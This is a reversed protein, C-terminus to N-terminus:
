DSLANSVLERVFGELSALDRSWDTSQLLYLGSSVLDPDIEEALARANSRPMYDSLEQNAPGVLWRLLRRFVRFIQPWPEFNPLPDVDLFKRWMDRAEFQNENGILHSHVFGASALSGAAEQVNRKTYATSRALEQANMWPTDTTLLARAVEARVSVGLLLRLRFAFNIPLRLDPAQSKRSPESRPKLFGQSLFAPDSAQLRSDRFFPRPEEAAGAESEVAPSEPEPGAV